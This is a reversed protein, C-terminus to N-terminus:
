FFSFYNKGQLLKIAESLNYEGVITVSSIDMRMTYLNRRTETYPCSLETEDTCFPLFDHFPLSPKQVNKSMTKEGLVGSPSARILSTVASVFHNSEPQKFNQFVRESKFMSLRTM